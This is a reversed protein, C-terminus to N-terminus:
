AEQSGRGGRADEARGANRKLQLLYDDSQQLRPTWECGGRNNQMSYGNVIPFDTMVLTDVTRAKKFPGTRRDKLGFLSLVQGQPGNQPFPPHKENKRM